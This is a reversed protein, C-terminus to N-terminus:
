KKWIYRVLRWGYKAIVLLILLYIVYQLAVFLLAVLNVTIDQIARNIDRVSSKIAAKWSDKLNEGDIFKNEFVDIYFYTYLLRDLQEAKSRSLRDLQSTINIRERTLREVVGIKSDIIKALSEADQNRTALATIDDYARIANELTESITNLKKELIEAESTFYDITRKITHTTESLDKPDLDEIIALIEAAHEREVKFIYNCGRDYENANEFIVYELSKLDIISGCTRELNRTEILANYQAIEFDEADGGTTGRNDRPPEPSPIGLVGTPNVSRTLLRASSADGYAAEEAFYNDDTYYVSSGQTVASNFGSKNFVPGISSGILRISVTLIVIAVFALGAIKLIKIPTLNLKKLFEIDM